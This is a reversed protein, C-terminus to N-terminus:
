PGTGFRKAHSVKHVGQLLEFGLAEYFEGAAKEPTFLQLRLFSGKAHTEIAQMLKRGVGTARVDPHVYLHRVRGVTPDEFYPDINLGGIGVLAGSREVGFLAEGALDFRNTGARFREVLRDLM